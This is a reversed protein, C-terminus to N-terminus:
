DRVGCSGLTVPTAVKVFADLVENVQSSTLGSVKLHEPRTLVAEYELVLPM